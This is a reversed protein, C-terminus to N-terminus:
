ELAYAPRKMISDLIMLLAKHQEPEAKEIVALPGREDCQEHIHDAPRASTIIIRKSDVGAACASEFLVACAVGPIDLDLILLHVEPGLTPLAKDVDRHTEVRVTRGYREELLMRWVACQKPSEDIVVM